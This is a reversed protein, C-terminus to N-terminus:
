NQSAPQNYARWILYGGGVWMPVSLIMGMTVGFPLHAAFSDPERFNEVITRAIGYGVLFLGTILGRYKLAGFRWVLIALIIFLVLGELAAEYLQSPHRAIFQGHADYIPAGFRDYQPFRVAWSVDSPRGWLEGNIFNAIRGLLLGIPAAAAVADSLMLLPRNAKISVYIMALAVGLLGGHFAMGGDWIRVISLPDSFIREPQYPLMYFLVYGLRGGLIVGLTAWFVFDDIFDRELLTDKQDWLKPRTTLILVYRWALLIGIIYALAYWRIPFPGLKLGFVEFGPLTVLAPDFNPFDYAIFSSAWVELFSLLYTVKFYLELEAM